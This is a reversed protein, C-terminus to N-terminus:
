LGLRAALGATSAPDLVSGALAWVGEFVEAPAGARMGGLLDARDDLNMAPLMLALSRAMEDPPISDVIARHMGAVAEVGVAAELRPMLEREELDQHALYTSTFAALEVYLRHAGARRGAAPTDVLEVAMAALDEVGRELDAHDAEVRAAMAPLHAEVAPQIFRDEHTAHSVLLGVLEDIRTALGISAPRDTPDLCGASATAGFLEARIAKHIDRYLDVTVLELPSATRDDRTDTATM